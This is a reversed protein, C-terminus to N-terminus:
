ESPQSRSHRTASTACRTATLQPDVLEVTDIINDDTKEQPAKDCAPTLAGVDKRTKSCYGGKQYHPCDLCVVIRNM